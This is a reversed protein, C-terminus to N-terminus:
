QLLLPFEVRTRVREYLENMQSYSTFLCFARGESAELLKVIEDAAAQCIKSERPM